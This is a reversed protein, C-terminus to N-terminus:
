TNLTHFTWQKIFKNNITNFLAVFTTDKKSFNM